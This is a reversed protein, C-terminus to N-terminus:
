AGIMNKIKARYAGVVEKLLNLRRIQKNSKNTKLHRNGHGRHMLKGSATLKFRSVASKRTKVKNTKM